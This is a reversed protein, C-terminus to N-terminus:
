LTEWETVRHRFLAEVLRYENILEPSCGRREAEAILDDLMGTWCGVTVGPGDPTPYLTAHQNESGVPGVTLVHRVHSVRANGGVRANGDVRADPGIYTTM